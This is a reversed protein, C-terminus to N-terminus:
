LPSTAFPLRQRTKDQLSYSICLKPFAWFKGLYWTSERSSLTTIWTHSMFLQSTWASQHFLLVIGTSWTHFAYWTYLGKMWSLRWCHPIHLQHTPYWYFFISELFWWLDQWWAGGHSICLAQEQNHVVASTTPLDGGIKNIKLKTRWCQSVSLYTSLSIHLPKWTWRSLLGFSINALISEKLINCMECDCSSQVLIENQNNIKKWGLRVFVKYLLGHYQPWRIYM